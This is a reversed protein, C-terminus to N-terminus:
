KFIVKSFNDFIQLFNLAKIEKYSVSIKYSYYYYNFKNPILSSELKISGAAGLISNSSIIISLAHNILSLLKM